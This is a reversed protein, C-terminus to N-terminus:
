GWRDGFHQKDKLDRPLQLPLRLQMHMSPATQTHLITQCNTQLARAAVSDLSYSQSAAIMWKKNLYKSYKYQFSPFLQSATTTTTTAKQESLWYRSALGTVQLLQIFLSPQLTSQPNKPTIGWSHAQPPPKSLRCCADGHVVNHEAFM